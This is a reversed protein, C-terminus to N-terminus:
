LDMIMNKNLPMLLVCQSPSPYLSVVCPMGVKEGSTPDTWWPRNRTGYVKYGRREYWRQMIRAEPLFPQGYKLCWTPSLMDQAPMTNLTIARAGFAPSRALAEVADM